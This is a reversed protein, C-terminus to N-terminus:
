RGEGNSVPASIDSPVEAVTSVAELPQLSSTHAEIIPPPPTPAPPSPPLADPLSAEQQVVPLSVPTPEDTPQVQQPSAQTVKESVPAQEQQPIPHLHVVAPAMRGQAPLKQKTSWTKIEEVVEPDDPSNLIDVTGDSQLALPVESFRKVKSSPVHIVRAQEVTIATSKGSLSSTAPKITDSLNKLAKRMPERWMQPITSLPDGSRTSQAREARAIPPMLPENLDGLTLSGGLLDSRSYLKRLLDSPQSDRLRALRNEPKVETKSPTFNLSDPFTSPRISPSLAIPSSVSALPTITSHLKSLISREKPLTANLVVGSTESAQQARAVLANSNQFAPSKLSNLPPLNQQPINAAVGSFDYDTNKNAIQDQTDTLLVPLWISQSFLAWAIAKTNVRQNPNPSKYTM